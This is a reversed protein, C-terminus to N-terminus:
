VLPEIAASAETSAAVDFQRPDTVFGNVVM